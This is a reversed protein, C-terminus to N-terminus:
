IEKWRAYLHVPHPNYWDYTWSGDPNQVGDFFVYYDLMEVKNGEEDYWGMFEFGEKEPVDFAALYTFGESAAATEAGYSWETEGDHFIIQNKTNEPDELIWMAHINVYRVGDESPPIREM